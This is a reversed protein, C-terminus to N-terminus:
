FFIYDTFYINDIKSLTLKSNIQEILNATNQEEKVSLIEEKSKTSFYSIFVSKLVGQKRAIEEYFATDASPYALWPTIVFVNSTEEDDQKDNEKDKKENKDEKAEGEAKPTIRITGLNFYSVDDTDIPPNLNEAKGKSILAQPTNKGKSVLGVITGTLIVVLLGAIVWMLIKNLKENNM